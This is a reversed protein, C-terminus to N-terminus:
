RRTLGVAPRVHAGGGTTRTPIKSTIKALADFRARYATQAAQYAELAGGGSLLRALEGAEICKYRVLEDIIETNAVMADDTWVAHLDIKVSRYAEDILRRGQDRFHDTPLRDLWGPHTLEVDQPRVGHQGRYRVLAFYTDAICTKGDVVYVWRVRYSPNPGATDDLNAEDALWASDLTAVIRTSQVLDPSNYANHLPHKATVTTDTVLAACEFWERTGDTATILYSRGVEFGDTSLVPIIRRDTQGEGAADNVETDPDTEVTGAGIAAPQPANDSDHYAFVQVSTVESPRGEPADYHVTQGDVGFLIDQVTRM